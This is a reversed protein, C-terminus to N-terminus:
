SLIFPEVQIAPDVPVIKALEGLAEAMDSACYRVVATIVGGRKTQRLIRFGYDRLAMVVLRCAAPTQDKLTIQLAHNNM